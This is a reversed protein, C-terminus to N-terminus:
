ITGSFFFIWKSCHNEVKKMQCHVSLASFKEICMMLNKVISLACWAASLPSLAGCCVQLDNM